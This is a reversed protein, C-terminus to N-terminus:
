QTVTVSGKLSPNLHDHIPCTKANTFKFGYSEGPQVIRLADLGPCVQHTPHVGSAPWHGVTDKNIFLVTTGSPITLSAPSFGDATMTVEQNKPALSPVDNPSINPNSPPNSAEPFATQSTQAASQSANTAPQQQSSKSSYFFYGGVLVILIVIGWVIGKSNNNPEM